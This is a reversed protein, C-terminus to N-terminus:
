LRDPTENVAPQRAPRPEGIRYGRELTALVVLHMFVSPLTLTWAAVLLHLPGAPVGHIIALGVAVAAIATSAAVFRARCLPIKTWPVIYTVAAGVALLLLSDARIAAGIAVGSALLVLYWALARAGASRLDAVWHLRVRFLELALLVFAPLGLFGRLAWGGHMQAAALQTLVLGIQGCFFSPFMSNAAFRRMQDGAAPM